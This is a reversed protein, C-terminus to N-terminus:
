ARDVRGHPGDNQDWSASGHPGDDQDWSRGHAPHRPRGHAGTEERAAEQRTEGGAQLASPIMAWGTNLYDLLDDAGPKGEQKAWLAWDLVTYHMHGSESLPHVKEVELYHAVCRRCGQEAAAFLWYKRPRTRRASPPHSKGPLCASEPAESTPPLANLYDLVQQAGAVEQEVAWEAWDHVTYGRNSSVSNPDM